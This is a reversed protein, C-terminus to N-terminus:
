DEEFQRLCKSRSLVPLTTVIKDCLSPDNRQIALNLYCTDAYFQKDEGVFDECAELNNNFEAVEFICVNIVNARPPIKKCISPDNKSEAIYQYCREKSYSVIIRGDDTTLIEKVTLSGAYERGPLLDCYSEDLTEMAKQFNIKDQGTEQLSCSSIFFLSIIILILVMLKKM